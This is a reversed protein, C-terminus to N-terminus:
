PLGDDQSAIRPDVCVSRRRKERYEPRCAPTILRGRGVGGVPTDPDDTM